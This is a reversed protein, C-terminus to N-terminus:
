NVEVNLTEGKKLDLEPFLIFDNTFFAGPVNCGTTGTGTEATPFWVACRGKTDYNATITFHKADQWVIAFPAQSHTEDLEARWAPDGYFAVVDRDHILGLVDKANQQHVKIGAKMLQWIINGAAFSENNFQIGLLAPNLQNTKHLIFQNNLFWAEALSTGATNGFFTGLTGWGGAGYWSPVTYGVVQNCNYASLATVCMSHPSYNANGFLCNGAALWVRPTSDPKVTEKTAAVAALSETNGAMAENLPKGAFEQFQGAPLKHFRNGYSFILGRSFPMELNYPTAHSSSVILQAKQNSLQDAFINLIPDKEDAAYTTTTPETYGSQELVPADTWDTICCSHEFRSHDANTTGLLTKITLPADTTAIRLADEATYGTIIGWICDGWPDDDVRRAARHLDNVTERGVEQPRLVFAAYRAQTSRLAASVTEENLEALTCIEAQNYKKKLAKTVQSWSTDAMTAATTIITYNSGTSGAQPAPSTQQPVANAPVTFFYNVPNQSGFVEKALEQIEELTISQIDEMLNRILPLQRADSQLRALASNWYATTRLQKQSSTIFPRLACDLDEQTIKGQGLDLLIADMATNVKVRNGIVGASTTTITAANSLAANTALRVSPSYTEGLQARIGDFLKQRAISTLVALRRNRQQDMGDGCPRIQSVITKDLDTTYSLFQRQGWRATTVATEEATLATFERNRAPMAGLTREIVPLIDEVKFDGVISVEMAGNQLWPTLAAKVQETTCAEIESREPTTFRADNGYIAKPAQLSFAGNPTTEYRNYIAPLQRRLRQEGDDRFGPHLINAVLLKCEMEFDAETTSGGFHFRDSGIGFSMGVSRGALIKEMENLDHAELGGMSMVQSAMTSLGPQHTLRLSGGDIYANISISGQSFDVPKLNVRIGNSLTLTTIGQDEIVAQQEISGPTGINEYAFAPVEEAAPPTVPQQMVSDYLNRLDAETIGAVKAGSLMLRARSSDFEQKLAQRCLDPNQLIRMLGAEFQKKDEAPTTMKLNNSIADIFNGAMQAADVSAWSNISRDYAARVTAVIENLEATTFGYECARRLELLTDTMATQWKEPSATANLGFMDVTSYLSEKNIGAAQFSCDAGRAMRALRRNLMACALDLPMEEARRAATDEKQQWPHTVMIGISMLANEPNEVVLEAPGMNDPAGPSIRAAAPTDEMSSFHKEIWARATETQFDGTVVVTMNRAVYHTKYYNRFVECPAGMIVEETGIPLYDPLRSGPAAHRLTALMARYSASDRAYLESKVIGREHEIASDELTAGDAFDRMITFAFNVTEDNLNPLDLMYVTELLSTYANADGGFGLGLRQMTPILEGRKFNRSGNFVLHEILHSIGKEHEQEDLSGVNVHLRISARGQPEATPRIIYKVGNPLEGKTIEPDEQLETLQTAAQELAAPETPEQTALVPVSLSLAIIPLISHYKMRFHYAQEPTVSFGAFNNLLLKFLLAFPTLRASHICILSYILTM